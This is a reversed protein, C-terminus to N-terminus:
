EEMQTFDDVQYDKCGGFCLIKTTSNFGANHKCLGLYLKWSLAVDLNRHQIATIQPLTNSKFFQDLADISSTDLTHLDKYVNFLEEEIDKTICM